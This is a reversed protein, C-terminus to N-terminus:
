AASSAKGEAFVWRGDGGAWILESTRTTKSNRYSGLNKKETKIRLQQQKM